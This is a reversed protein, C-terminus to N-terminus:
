IKDKVPGIEFRNSSTLEAKIWKRQRKLSKRSRVLKRFFKKLLLSAAVVKTKDHNSQM